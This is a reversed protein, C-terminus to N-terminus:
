SVMENDPLRAPSLLQMMNRTHEPISGEAVILDAMVQGVGLSLMMGFTGVRAAVYANDWQPLRGLVPQMFNPAWGELDGRHEVIKSEELRPLLDVASEM